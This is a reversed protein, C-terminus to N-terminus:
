MASQSQSRCTRPMKPAQYMQILESELRTNTETLMENSLDCQTGQDTQWPFRNDSTQGSIDYEADASHGGTLEENASLPTIYSKSSDLSFAKGMLSHTGNKRHPGPDSCMRSIPDVSSTYLQGSGNPTALNPKRSVQGYKKPSTTNEMEFKDLKEKVFKLLDECSTDSRDLHRNLDLQDYNGNTDTSKHDSQLDLSTM